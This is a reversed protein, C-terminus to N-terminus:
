STHSKLVVANRSPLRMGAGVAGSAEVNRGASWLAEWWSSPVNPVTAPDFRFDSEGFNLLALRHDNGAWRHIALVKSTLAHARTSRRDAQRLVPDSRRLTLLEQYATYVEGHRQREDFDLKSRQFTEEAQPDPIAARRTPDNFASFGKFEERRGATVLRGLEPNHDTFFLFPSSSAFEQGQFLLTTEPSLLLTASALLYRERDILHNLREGCARNGVQDHNESCFVFGYGPQDSVRTGRRKGDSLRPQGQYLFGSEITRALDALSGSFERFYGEREDVLFTRLAHHFDDAWVGDLGFGDREPPDFLRVENRHDEAFVIGPRSRDHTMAAIEALLHRPSADHIAHTADLRLGDLHYEDLWYDVNQLILQRVWRSNPGDYNIAEGWPTSYRDTFYDDSYARLYNGDPGFHNYVVDLLVGLGAQHAADVLRKLGTPGGYASSPAYLDVGDYGWNRRGPFEAVPMLEIASLGLRALEPLQPVVGEFTGDPSFTGVHLEYIVLSERDLGAWDGDEWHFASPDVV